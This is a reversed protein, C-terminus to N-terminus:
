LGTSPGSRLSEICFWVLNVGCTWKLCRWLNMELLVRLVHPQLTRHTIFNFHIGSSRKSDLGALFIFFGHCLFVGCIWIQPLFLSSKLGLSFMCYFSSNNQELLRAIQRAHNKLISGCVLRCCLQASVWLQFIRIVENKILIVEIILQNQLYTHTKIHIRNPFRRTQIM